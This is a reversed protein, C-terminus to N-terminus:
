VCPEEWVVTWPELGVGSAGREVEPLVDVSPWLGSCLADAYAHLGAAHMAAAAGAHDYHLPRHHFAIGGPVPQVLSFWGRPTADNAPMGIAGPNHWARGDVIRTFPLGCHGGVVCAAGGLLAPLAPDSAFVFRSTEGPAGHTVQLTRGGLELALTRPLAAMWARADADLAADAHAFWGASLRDCASGPAFGCGCDGARAALQEECNGMVVRVGSERLLAVTAAPHACYAVVDGTCVIREPPIRLAEAQALLARTAHLNSYPGGFLLHTM